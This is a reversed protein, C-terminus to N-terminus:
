KTLLWLRVWPSPTNYIRQNEAVMWAVFERHAAERKPEDLWYQRWYAKIERQRRNWPLWM